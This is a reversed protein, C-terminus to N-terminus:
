PEGWDHTFAADFHMANSPCDLGPQLVVALRGVGNEGADLYTRFYWGIDPDMYPIFIESLSGQYLISRMEGSDDYRVLSVVPGLRPDIRFHFQWKQWTVVSGDVRFSPGQPQVISIANPPERLAGVSDEGLDAPGEPIPVAGTDILRVIERQDLDVVAILGEIPRSWFNTSGAPAYCVAKVLRRGEEEAIGYYGVPNPVCVVDGFDQIGRERAAAQWEQNGIVILQVFRWEVSPLLGPQVNEVQEWSLVKGEVADVVAEFTEPGKKVIAFARRPLADGPKWRLVDEKSPEQLTILPYLGAQGAYKEVSLATVVTSYEGTALPDMPHIVSATAVESGCSVIALVAMLGLSALLKGSMETLPFM